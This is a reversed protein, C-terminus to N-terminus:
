SDHHPDELNKDDQNKLRDRALKECIAQRLWMNRGTGEARACADLRDVITTNLKLLVRRSEIPVIEM